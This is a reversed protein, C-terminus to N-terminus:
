HDVSHFKLPLDKLEKIDIGERSLHRLEIVFSPDGYLVYSSWAIERGQYKRFSNIRAQQLAKGFTQGMFIEQYFDLAIEIAPKDHIPWVSGIYNVGNRLFASAVGFVQNVFTIKPMWDGERSSECANIFALVPPQRQTAICQMIEYAKLVGDHLLLGSELPNDVSFTAHGSFHILDYNSSLEAIMRLTNVQTGILLKVDLGDIRLLKMALQEAEDRAGPLAPVHEYPFNYFPYTENSPDGVVLVRLQQRPAGFRYPVEPADSIVYRGLSNRLCIFDKGDHMLEWPYQVIEDSIGLELSHVKQLKEYVRKVEAPLALAYMAMGLERLDSAVRKAMEESSSRNTSRMERSKNVSETIADIRRSIESLRNDNIMTPFQQEARRVPAPVTYGITYTDQAQKVIKIQGKLGSSGIAYHRTSQEKALEQIVEILRQQYHRAKDSDGRDAYIRALNNYDIRLGTKFDIREDIELAKLHLELAKENEGKREYVLAMNTIDGAVGGWDEIQENIGQADMHSSIAEEFNDLRALLFGRDRYQEAAAALDGLDVLINILKEQYDLSKELDGREAHIRSLNSYDIRLGPKYDIRLDIELAENHMQLAKEEDEMREYIIAINTIDGAVGGWDRIEEHLKKASKHEEIAEKHKGEDMLEFGRSRHEEALLGKRRFVDYAM